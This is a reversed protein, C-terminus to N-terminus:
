LLTWTNNANNNYQMWTNNSVGNTLWHHMLKEVKCQLYKIWLLLCVPSFLDFSHIFAASLKSIIGCVCWATKQSTPVCGTNALTPEVAHGQCSTIRSPWCESGKYARLCLYLSNLRGHRHSHTHVQPIMVPSWYPMTPMTAPATISFSAAWTIRGASPMWLSWLLGLRWWSVWWWKRMYVLVVYWDWHICYKCAKSWVNCQLIHIVIFGSKKKTKVTVHFGHLWYFLQGLQNPCFDHRTVSLVCHLVTVDSMFTLVSVCTLLAANTKQGTTHSSLSHATLSGSYCVSSVLFSSYVFFM